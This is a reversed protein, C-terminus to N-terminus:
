QEEQPTIELQANLIDPFLNHQKERTAQVENVIRQASGIISVRLQTDLDENDLSVLDKAIKLLIVNMDAQALLTQLARMKWNIDDREMTSETNEKKM